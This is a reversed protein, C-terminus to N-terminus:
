FNTAPALGSYEGSSRIRNVKKAGYGFEPLGFSYMEASTTKPRVMGEGGGLTCLITDKTL